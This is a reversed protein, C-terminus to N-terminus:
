LREGRRAGRKASRGAPLSLLRGRPGKPPLFGGSPREPPRPIASLGGFQM